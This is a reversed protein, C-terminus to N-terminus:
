QNKHRDRIAQIKAPLQAVPGGTGSPSFRFPKAELALLDGAEVGGDSFAEPPTLAAFFSYIGAAEGGHFTYAFFPDFTLDLGQSLVANKALPRFARPDDLRAQIWGEHSMFLATQGDPLIAGFYFDGTFPPGPQHIRLAVRVTQGTTFTSQNLTLTLGPPLVPHFEVAGIDCPGVRPQGLQDQSPCAAPDGADVARSTRLLPYHGHGPQGDDTYVDLGPDGTLDTPQLTITCDMLSGILNHGQSTIQGTCDAPRSQLYTNGAVISNLVVLLGGDNTLGGSGSGATTNAAVTTNTLIATGGSANLLASGGFCVRCFNQALTSNTLVMVGGSNTLGGSTDGFNDVVTSNTLSVTGGENLLAGSGESAGGAFTTDTISLSGGDNWVGAAVFFGVNNVFTSAAITVTGGQNVLGGGEDFDHDAVTARSITLTGRNFLGGGVSFGSGRGGRLTLGELALTGTAAVHVLRFGPAGAAREIITTEAGVGTITLASTVSPLGNPGDTANDVATLTYTGAALRITDPEATGNAARMANILCTVDGTGCTFTAATCIRVASILLIGMTLALMRQTQHM